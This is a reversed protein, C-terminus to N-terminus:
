GESLITANAEQILLKTLRDAEEYEGAKQADMIKQNLDTVSMSQGRGGSSHSDDGTSGKSKDKVAQEGKAVMLSRLDNLAETLADGELDERILGKAEMVALEPYESMILANRELKAKGSDVLGTLEENSKALSEAKEAAAKLESELTDIKLGLEVKEKGWAETDLGHQVLAGKHDEVLKQHKPQLGKFRKEWDTDPSTDDTKADPKPEGSPKADDSGATDGADTEGTGTIDTDEEGM